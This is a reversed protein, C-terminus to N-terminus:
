KNRKIILKYTHTNGSPAKCKFYLTKSKGRSLKVTKAGAIRTYSGGAYRVYLKAESSFYPRIKVSSRSRNITIKSYSPYYRTKSFSRSWTGTSKSIKTVYCATSLWGAYLTRPSTVPRTFDYKQTAASDTYWGTFKKGARSPNPPKVATDNEKIRQTSVASGGQSDFDIVFSKGVKFSITSGVTSGIDYVYCIGPRGNSYFLSNERATSDGYTTRDSSSTLVWTREPAGGEVFYSMNGASLYWPITGGLTSINKVNPRYIYYTDPKSLSTYNNGSSVGTYLENYPYRVRYILLGSGPISADWTAANKKRYEFVLLQGDGMNYYYSTPQSDTASPEQVRLETNFSTIKQPEAGWGAVIYRMFSNAYQPISATSAMVDWAGVPTGGLYYRYLDPFGLLHMMEHVYTGLADAKDEQFNELQFDYKYLYKGQITTGNPDAWMHPWLLDDWRNSTGSIIFTLADICEDNDQDLTAGSPMTGLGDAWTVAHELLAHERATSEAETRYGLTNGTSYPMYYRRPHEDQYSVVTGNEDTSFVTSISCAGESQALIGTKVSRTNSNYLGENTAAVQPTVFESEDAFRIYIAVNTIPLQALLKQSGVALRKGSPSYNPTQLERTEVEMKENRVNKEPDVQEAKLGVFTNINTRTVKRSTPTIKGQADLEAFTTSGQANQTVITGNKTHAYRFFEDGTVLLALSTGDPQTISVPHDKVYVAQAPLAGEFLVAIFAAAFLLLQSGLSFQKAITRVSRGHVKM